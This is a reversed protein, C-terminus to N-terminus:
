DDNNADDPAPTHWTLREEYFQIVVQPCRVNAQKAPVLDAEDTGQWKMLFMLEGSSDTAGIIKEPELGRDFGSAKKDDSKSKKAGKLDPTAATSKRKKVDKDVKPTKGEASQGIGPGAAEKKKRAEEFASILDPCDLNEEPEWTNDADSYGKWKLFYEVKGNRVRRDLVKEVSFEEEPEAESGEKKKEAMNM